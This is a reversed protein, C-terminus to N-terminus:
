KEHEGAVAASELHGNGSRSGHVGKNGLRPWQRAAVMLPLLHEARPTIARGLEALLGALKQWTDPPNWAM